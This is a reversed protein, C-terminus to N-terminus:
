IGHQRVFKIEKKDTQTFINGKDDIFLNVTSFNSSFEESANRLKVLIRLSIIYNDFDQLVEVKGIELEPVYLNSVRRVEQEARDALNENNPEFLLRLVTSGFSPNLLRERKQTTIANILNAIKQDLTITNQKFIRRGEGNFPYDIGLVRNPQTRISGLRGLEIAM